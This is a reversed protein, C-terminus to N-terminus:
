YFLSKFITSRSEITRSNSSNKIKTIAKISKITAEKLFESIIEELNIEDYERFFIKNHKGSKIHAEVLVSHGTKSKAHKHYLILIPKNNEIVKGIILGIGTSFMTNEVIIVDSKNIANKMTDYVSSLNDRMEDVTTDFYSTNLPSKKDKFIDKLRSLLQISNPDGKSAFFSTKM